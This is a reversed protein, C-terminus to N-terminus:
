RESRKWVKLLEHCIYHFGVGDIEVWKDVAEAPYDVYSNNLLIVYCVVHEGCFKAVEFGSIDAQVIGENRADRVATEKILLEVTADLDDPYDSEGNFYGAIEEM